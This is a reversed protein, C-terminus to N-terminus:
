DTLGLQAMSIVDENTFRKKIAGNDQSFVACALALSCALGICWVTRIRTGFKMEVEGDVRRHVVLPAQYRIGCGSRNPLDIACPRPTEGAGKLVECVVGLFLAQCIGMHSYIPVMGRAEVVGSAKLATASGRRRSM